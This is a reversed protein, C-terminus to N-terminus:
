STKTKKVGNLHVIRTKKQQHDGQGAWDDHGTIQRADATDAATAPQFVRPTSHTLALPTLKLTRTQRYIGHKYTHDQTHTPPHTHIHIHTHTYIATTKSNDTASSVCRNCGPAMPENTHADLFRRSSVNTSKSTRRIQDYTHIRSTLGYNCRSKEFRNKKSSVPFPVLDPCDNESRWCYIPKMKECICRVRTGRFHTGAQVPSLSRM